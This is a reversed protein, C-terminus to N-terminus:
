LDHKRAFMTKPHGTTPHLPCHPCPFPRLHSHTSLIHTNLNFARTYSKPCHPCTHTRPTLARDATHTETTPLSPALTATTSTSLTSSSSSSSHTRTHHAPQPPTLTINPLEAITPFEAAPASTPFTYEETSQMTYTTDFSVTNFGNAKVKIETTDSFLEREMDILTTESSPTLPFTFEFSPSNDADLTPITWDTTSPISTFYDTLSELVPSLTLSPVIPSTTQYHTPESCLSYSFTQQRTTEDPWSYDAIAHRTM